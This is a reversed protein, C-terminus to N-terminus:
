RADSSAEISFAENARIAGNPEPGFSMGMVYEDPVGEYALGAVAHLGFRGYYAPDGVLVCGPAGLARLEELGAVVLASGIGGGQRGPSVAVPGLLYWDSSDGVRAKSFAIHGVLDGGDQAVLSVALAGSERLADVILHETQRSIPHDLFAAREIERIADVDGPTERRVVIEGM